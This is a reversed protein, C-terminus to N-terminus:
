GVLHTSLIAKTIVDVQTTSFLDFFSDWDARSINQQPNTNAPMRKGMGHFTRHLLDLHKFAWATAAEAQQSTLNLAYMQNLTHFLATVKSKALPRAILKAPGAVVTATSLMGAYRKAPTKGLVGRIIALKTTEASRASHEVINYMLGPLVHDSMFIVFM